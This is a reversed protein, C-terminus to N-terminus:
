QTFCDIGAKKMRQKDWQDAQYHGIAVGILVALLYMVFRALIKEM